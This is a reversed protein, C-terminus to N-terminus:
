ERFGRRYAWDYADAECSFEKSKNEGDYSYNVAATGNESVQVSVTEGYFDEMEYEYM